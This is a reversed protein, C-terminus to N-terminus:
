VELNKIIERINRLTEAKVSGTQTLAVKRLYEVQECADKRRLYEADTVPRWAGDKTITYGHNAM